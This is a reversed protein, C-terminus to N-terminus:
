NILIQIVEKMNSVVHDANISIDEPHSQARCLWCTSMGVAKAGIIDNTYSDGVYLCESLTVRLLGAAHNFIRPDPKRIGIEESLVICSFIDRLGITELKRYQVDPLGNSVVGVKFRRSLAKVLPVAGSVPANVSPYERVYTDTVADAYDERLGLLRLFHRSRADRLGDSSVGAAFAEVTLRDSEMFAEMIRDSNLSQFLRPFRKVILGLIIAQAKSRDFLTDDIDFLVAKINTM